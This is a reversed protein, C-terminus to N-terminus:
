PTARQKYSDLLQRVKDADPANPDCRLYTEYYYAAKPGNKSKAYTIGLARMCQCSHKDVQVCRTFADIAGQLNGESLLGAGKKYLDKPDEAPAPAPRAVPEPEAAKTEHIGPKAKKGGGKTPGEGKKARCQEIDDHLQALDGQAAQLDVLQNAQTEADDCNKKALDSKAQKMAETVLGGRLQEIM